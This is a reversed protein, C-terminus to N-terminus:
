KLISQIKRKRSHVEKLDLRLRSRGNAMVVYVIINDSDEEVIMDSIKAHLTTNVSSKYTIDDGSVLNTQSKIFDDDLKILKKRLLSRESLYKKSNM